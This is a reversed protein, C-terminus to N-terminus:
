SPKRNTFLQQWNILLEEWILQINPNASSQLLKKSQLLKDMYRFSLVVSKINDKSKIESVLKFYLWDIAILPDHIKCVEAASIASAHNVALEDLLKEFECRSKVLDNDTLSVALLPRGGAHKILEDIDERDPFKQLLWSKVECSDPLPFSVQQCRSKITALIRSLDHSILLILTREKPEELNKLLANAANTNMSETPRIIVIKWGGQQSTKSFFSGLGRISEVNIPKGNSDPQIKILDPHNNASVLVCSKCHGCAFQNQPSMCLMSRALLLAFQYKGVNSPGVLNIAHPLKGLDIQSSLAGWQSDQWPFFSDPTGSISKKM